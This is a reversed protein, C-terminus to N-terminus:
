HFFLVSEKPYRELCGDFVKVVQDLRTRAAKLLSHSGLNFIGKPLRAKMTAFFDKADGTPKAIRSYNEVTEKHFRCLDTLIPTGKSGGYYLNQDPPGSKYFSSGQDIYAFSMDGLIQTDDEPPQCSPRPEGDIPKCGGYTFTNHGFWRDTNGIVYDFLALNSQEVLALRATSSTDNPFPKDVTYWKRQGHPPKLVTEDANHVDNMWLQLSVYILKEQKSADDHILTASADYDVVFKQFWQSYFAGKTAAAAQLYKLPFSVWVAIPVRNVSLLRDAEYAMVESSPELAFKKQSVKMVATAGNGFFVKYKITRGTNLISSMPKLSAWNAIDAMYARCALDLDATFRNDSPNCDPKEHKPASGEKAVIPEDPLKIGKHSDEHFDTFVNSSQEVNGVDQKLYLAYNALAEDYTINAYGVSAKGFANRNQKLNRRSSGHARHKKREKQGGHSDDKKNGSSDSDEHHRGHHHAPGKKSPPESLPHAHHTRPAHTAKPEDGDIDDGHKRGRQRGHRKDHGGHKSHHTTPPQKQVAEADDVGTSGDTNSQGGPTLVKSVPPRGISLAIYVNTGVVMLGVAVFFVYVVNTRRGM